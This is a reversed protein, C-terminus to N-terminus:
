WWSSGTDGAMYRLGCFPHFLSGILMDLQHSYMPIQHGGLLVQLLKSQGASTVYLPPEGQVLELVLGWHVLEM